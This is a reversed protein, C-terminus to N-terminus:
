LILNLDNKIKTIVARMNDAQSDEIISEGVVISL